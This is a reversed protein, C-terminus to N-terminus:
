APLLQVWGLSVGGRSGDAAVREVLKGGADAMHRSNATRRPFKVGAFGVWWGKTYRYM